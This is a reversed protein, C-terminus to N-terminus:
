TSQLLVASIMGNVFRKLIQDKYSIFGLIFEQNTLLEIIMIQCITYNKWLKLIFSLFTKKKHFRENKLFHNQKKLIPDRLSLPQSSEGKEFTKKESNLDMKSLDINSRLYAILVTEQTTFDKVANEFDTIFSKVDKKAKELTNETEVMRDLYDALVLIQDFIKSMETLSEIAEDIKPPEEM